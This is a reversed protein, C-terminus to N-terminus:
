LGVESEVGVAVGIEKRILDSLTSGDRLYVWDGSGSGEKDHMGEGSIVWDYRKPGSIPSSLWIQKNPPQKNLVYTGAPPFVLTLVGASYEVDVEAREEQLQELKALLDELYDDSREHYEENSIDAPAAVHELPDPIKPPPDSSEPSIGKPATTTNHFQRFLARSHLSQTPTSIPNHLVAACRPTYNVAKSSAQRVSRRLAQSVVSPVPRAFM